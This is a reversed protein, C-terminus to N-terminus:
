VSPNEHAAVQGLLLLYPLNSGLLDLIGKEKYAQHSLAKAEMDKRMEVIVKGIHTTIILGQVRQLAPYM